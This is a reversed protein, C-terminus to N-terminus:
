QKVIKFETRRNLRHEAETCPVGNACQNLLQTDGYGKAEIRNRSIGRSIIYQVASEARNQSLTMNYADDGRSDTHSGLEIWITPNDEMIKVVKDLEVAADARITWRNFDYYINELRIAKYMEVAELYLDRQITASVNLSQTSVETVESRFNTKEGALSYVSGEDLGFRYTGNSDTEVKLTGGNNKSLSVIANALPTHTSKNYVTGALKFMLNKKKKTFSYIDDEGLGGMRNSSFYGASDSISSYAFDDQPSNFPYGMNLPKVWKGNVLKTRFIDLGGMGILGDSSFYLNGASDLAPTRENGATNIDTLNVPTGWTGDASRKCYYIDTGGKGGPMNSSFYLTKGDKTIYPDGVSYDNPSNYKFSVPEMWKGNADKKCSYIEVNITRIATGKEKKYYEPLKTLTYFMEKEDGTFCAPGTHYSNNLTAPFYNIDGIGSRQMYLHLYSNGTRGYVNKDPVQVSVFKLFPRSTQTTSRLRSPMDDRDSSFVINNEYVVAGWDSKPTNISKLNNVTFHVPNRMWFSASDCAAMWSDMQEKSVIDAQKLRYKLFAAKAEAYKGNNKLANAYALMNSPGSGPMSSAIAYWSETEKYDQVFAYCQALREAAHLTVKKHYAQEYLDIAKKYDSLEFKADAEKIVYQAHSKIGYSLLVVIVSLKVSILKM